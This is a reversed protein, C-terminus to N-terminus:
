SDARDTPQWGWKWQELRGLEQSLEWIRKDYEVISLWELYLELAKKDYIEAKQSFPVTELFDYSCPLGQERCYRRLRWYTAQREDAKKHLAWRAAYIQRRLQRCRFWKYIRQFM